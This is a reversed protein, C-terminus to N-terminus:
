ISGFIAFILIIVFALINEFSLPIKLVKIKRIYAYSSESFDEMDEQHEYVVSKIRKNSCSESPSGLVEDKLYLEPENVKKRVKNPSCESDEETLNEIKEIFDELIDDTTNFDEEKIKYDIKIM